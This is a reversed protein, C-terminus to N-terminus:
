LYVQRYQALIGRVEADSDISDMMSYSYGEISESKFNLPNSIAAACMKLAAFKVASPIADEYSTFLGTVKVNRVGAPFRGCLHRLSWKITKNMPELIYDTGSVLATILSGDANTLDVATITKCPDIIIEQEGGDFYRSEPTTVNAFTTDCYNDISAAASGEITPFIAAEKTTLSRKIYNELDTQTIYM